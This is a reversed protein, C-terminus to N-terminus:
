QIPPYLMNWCVIARNRFSVVIVLGIPTDKFPDDIIVFEPKNLTLYIEIEGNVGRERYQPATDIEPCM